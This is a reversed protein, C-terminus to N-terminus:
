RPPPAAGMVDVLQQLNELSGTKKGSVAGHVFFQREPLRAEGPSQPMLVYVQQPMYETHKDVPTGM